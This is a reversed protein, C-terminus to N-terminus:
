QANSSIKVGNCYIAYQFSWTTSTPTVTAIGSVSSLFVTAGVRAGELIYTTTGITCETDNAAVNVTQSVGITGASATDNVATATTNQANTCPNSITGIDISSNWTYVVSTNDSLSLSLPFSGSPYSITDFVQMWHNSPLADGDKWQTLVPVSVNNISLRLKATDTDTLQYNNADSAYQAGINMTINTGTCYATYAYTYGSAGVNEEVM